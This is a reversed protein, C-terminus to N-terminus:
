DLRLGFIEPAVYFRGDFEATRCDRCVGHEDLDPTREWCEVCPDDGLGYETMEHSHSDSFGCVPCTSLEYGVRHAHAEAMIQDAERQTVNNSM